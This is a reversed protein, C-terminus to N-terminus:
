IWVGCYLGRAGTSNTSYGIEALEKEEADTWVSNGQKWFGESLIRAGSGYLVKWKMRESWNIFGHIHVENKEEKGYPLTIVIVGGPKLLQRAKVIAKTEHDCDPYNLSEYNFHELTSIFIVCDFKEEIPVAVFDGAYDGGNLDCTKVMAGRKKLEDLYQGPGVDLVIKDKFDNGWLRELIIFLFPIEIRREYSYGPNEDIKM